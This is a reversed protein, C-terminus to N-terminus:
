RRLSDLLARGAVVVDLLAGHDLGGCVLGLTRGRRRRRRRRRGEELVLQVERAAPELRLRVLHAEYLLYVAPLLPLPQVM